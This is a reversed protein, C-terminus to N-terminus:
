SSLRSELEKVIKTIEPLEQKCKDLEEANKAPMAPFGSVETNEPIDKTVGSFSQIKVGDNIVIHGGLGVHHGINVRSGVKTSGCVGTHPGIVSDPGIIVNHAIQVLDGIETGSCIRTEGLTARDITAGSGIRVNDEIVVIGMQPIKHRLGNKDPAFGFGDSGLIVGSEITVNKGIIVKERITVHPYVASGEGIVSEPGIYTGTGISVNDGITVDPGIVVKPGICINYGLNASEHIVATHHIDQPSIVTVNDISKYDSALVNGIAM